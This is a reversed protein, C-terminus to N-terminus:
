TKRGRSFSIKNIHQTDLYFPMINVFPTMSRATRYEFNSELFVIDFAFFQKYDRRLIHLCFLIPNSDLFYLLFFNHVTRQISIYISLYVCAYVNYLIHIYLKCYLRCFVYQVFTCVAASLYLWVNLQVYFGFYRNYTSSYSPSFLIVCISDCYAACM